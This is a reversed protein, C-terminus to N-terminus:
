NTRTMRVVVRMTNEANGAYIGKVPPVDAYDRGRGSPSTASGSRATTRRTTAGGAGTWVEVWAHSEGHIEEGITADAEPHFYGSVYRSPLGVSKTLALALHAFDQCVGAGDSYAEDASTHVSTVGRVYRLSTTPPPWSAGRRRSRANPACARRSRASSPAPRRTSITRCTTPWPRRRTPWRRGRATRPSTPRAPHRRALQGHHDAGRPRPRRQLGGRPHGLLRHLLVPAGRAPHGGEDRARDPAARDAPDPAARQLLGAGPRRLRVPDRPLGAAAVRRRPEGAGVERAGSCRSHGPRLLAPDRRREGRLHLGAPARAADRAGPGADGAGLVGARGPGPRGARPRRGVDGDRGANIQDLCEEALTLSAFASRPFLRDRLLFDLVRGPEVVGQSLRLYPEYGGCSRLLMVLGSDFVEDFAVTALQRAVVDTRELCRGLTFFLWTQDRSMMTDALGTMGACQTKVFSLYFAPSARRGAEWRAPLEAWTANIHEWFEVPVVHRVARTNERAAALAGAISSLSEADTALRETAQWLTERGSDPLGMVALLRRAAHSGEVDSQELAQYVSVDLIRATGEAREVYRGVWFISEAVRSLLARTTM